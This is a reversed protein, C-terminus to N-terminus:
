TKKIAKIIKSWLMPLASPFCRYLLWYIKQRRPTFIISRNKQVGRMIQSVVDDPSLNAAEAQRNKNDDSELYSSYNGTTAHIGTNLYGPCLVSVNIGYQFSEARLCESYGVVAHKSSSYATLLGAPILGALSATNIIHGFGQDKMIPYVVRCGNVVGWYNVEFITKWLEEPIDEMEGNASIGANNFLYDLRGTEESCLSIWDSLQLKDTVDLHQAKCFGGKSVLESATKELLEKNQDAIFVNGGRSSIWSAISKGIGSAGGTILATKGEFRNMM